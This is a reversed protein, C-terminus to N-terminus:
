NHKKRFDEFARVSDEVNGNEIDDYGKKLKEHLQEGSMTDANISDPIKSSVM